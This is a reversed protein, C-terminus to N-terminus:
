EEDSGDNALWFTSSYLVNAHKARKGRGEIAQIANVTEGNVIETSSGEADATSVLGGGEGPVYLKDDDDCDVRSSQQTHAFVVDTMPVKSDDGHIDLAVEELDESQEQQFTLAPPIHQPTGGRSRPQTIEAWFTPDETVLERLAKSAERSTLSTYSLNFAGARCM